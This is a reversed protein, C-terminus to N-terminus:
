YDFEFEQAAKFLLAVNEPPIDAQLHNSPAFIYGGGPALSKNVRAVENLVGEKSGGLAHTIGVGGLFVIKGQYERKIAAQDTAALPELPHLVDVGIEILEPILPAIAGDSHLMIKIGPNFSRITDIMRKVVPKIFERFMGPSIILNKNGAYDDGPLEIMDIYEGCAKLYNSYLRCYTDSIKEILACALEPREMMDIMLNEMGRLDSAYQFPGHSVVMRATIWYDTNERLWKAREGSQAFWKKDDPDPWHVMSEIQEISDIKSLLGEGTFYYPIARKWVQGFADFFTNEDDGTFSPSSPSLTPYIYRMDTNLCDLVRDDMYSISHGTRYPQVPDGLSFLKLLKKYLEDVVGYPGGGLATPIRDTKRFDMAARVREIPKM